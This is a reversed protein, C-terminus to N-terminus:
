RDPKVDDAQVDRSSAVHSPRIMKVMKAMAQLPDADQAQPSPWGELRTLDRYLSTDEGIESQIETFLRALETRHDDWPGKYLDWCKERCNIYFARAVSESVRLIRLLYRCRLRFLPDAQADSQTLAAEAEEIARALAPLDDIEMNDAIFMILEDVPANDRIREIMCGFRSFVGFPQGTNMANRVAQAFNARDYLAYAEAQAAVDRAGEAVAVARLVGLLDRGRHNWASDAAVSLVLKDAPFTGAWGNLGRIGADLAQGIHRRVTALHTPRGPIGRMANALLIRRGEGAAAAMDGHIPNIPRINYTGFREGSYYIWQVDAPLSRMVALNEPFSGQGLAIKCGLGPAQKRLDEVIGHFVKAEQIFESRGRREKPPLAHLRNETLWFCLGRPALLDTVEEALELLVQRTKEQFFDVAISVPSGHHSIAHTPVMEPFKRGIFDYHEPHTFVPIMRIGRAEGYRFLERLLYERDAADPYSFEPHRRSRYCIGGGEGVTVVDVLNLKHDSMWDLWKKHHALVKERDRHPSTTNFPFTWLGREEMDAGDAVLARPLRLRKPSAEIFQKLTKMGWYVGEVDLGQLVLGGQGPLPAIRYPQYGSHFNFAEFFPHAFLGNFPAAAPPLFYVVTRREVIGKDSRRPLVGTRAEIFAAFEEAARRAWTDEEPVALVLDRPRVTIWGSVQVRKPLPLLRDGWAPDVPLAQRMEISEM